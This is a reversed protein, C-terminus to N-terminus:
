LIKVFKYATNSILWSTDEFLNIPDCIILPSYGIVDVKGIDVLYLFYESGKIKAQDIENESWYFHPIGVFSKVEIFRDYKTSNINNLSIIDFGATVDIESIRKVLGSDSSLCLRNAEYKMVFIEAKEGQERQRDLQKKLTSLSIASSHSRLIEIIEQELSGDLVLSGDIHEHLAGFNILLNRFAAAYLPIGERKLYYFKELDSYKFATIDLDEKTVMVEFCIRSIETAFREKNPRQQKIEEGLKTLIFAGDHITIIELYELAFLTVNFNLNFDNNFSCLNRASSISTVSSCIVVNFFHQLGDLDCIFSSRKIEARM